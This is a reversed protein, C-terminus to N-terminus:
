PLLDDITEGEDPRGEIQQYYELYKRGIWPARSSWISEVSIEGEECFSDVPPLSHKCDGLIEWLAIGPRDIGANDRYILRAAEIFPYSKFVALAIEAIAWGQQASKRRIDGLRSLIFAHIKAIVRTFGVDIGDCVLYIGPLRVFWKGTHADSLDETHVSIVPVQPLAKALEGRLSDLLDLITM